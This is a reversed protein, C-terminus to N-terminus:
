LYVLKELQEEFRDLTQKAGEVAGYEKVVTDLEELHMFSVISM